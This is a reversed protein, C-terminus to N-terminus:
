LIKRLSTSHAHVNACVASHMYHCDYHLLHSILLFSKFLFSSLLQQKLSDRDRKFCTPVPICEGIGTEKINSKEQNTM